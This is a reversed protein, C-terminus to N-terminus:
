NGGSLWRDLCFLRFMSTPDFQNEAVIQRIEGFGSDLYESVPSDASVSWQL